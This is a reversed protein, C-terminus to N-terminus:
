TAGRKVYFAMIAEALKMLGSPPTVIRATPLLGPQTGAGPIVAETSCILRFYEGRNELKFDTVFLDALNVTDAIAQAPLGNGNGDGDGDISM